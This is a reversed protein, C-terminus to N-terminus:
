ALDLRTGFQTVKILTIGWLARLGRSLDHSPDSQSGHYQTVKGGFLVTVHYARDSPHARPGGAELLRARPLSNGLGRLCSKNAANPRDHLQTLLPPLTRRELCIDKAAEPDNAHGRRERRFCPNRTALFHGKSPFTKECSAVWLGGAM